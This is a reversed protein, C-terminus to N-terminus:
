VIKNIDEEISNQINWIRKYLGQQELLQKHTGMQTIKGKELVIIKDAQSVTTIRHSIIFTTVDKSRNRLSARIAADTETDVASLSDDFILVPCDNIITRAIAVRQKQGGSLTVGQEGVATDYGNDFDKIVDHISAISAANYIEQDEVDGRAIGINDKITKSFLFPEQLVIGVNRRLWKKNFDKIDIGDIKISGKDYDYLRILLHILSSKGSGTPGLIAVTEGKKADFTVGNLIPNESNYAFHVNEFEINGEIQPKLGENTEEASVDLIENIRDIAVFSKGMDTLIRGMQRVPWLLRNEYTTFAVVTGLTVEGKVAFVCGMILVLGVQIMCFLDSLSWFSAMLQILREVLRRYEENKAEFKEIEHNQRGFARVVRVGTLNEQLTTSLRGDAEDCLKFRSKIKGFFVFSFIFIVPVLSVAILALKTNISFMIWGCILVMFLGRGIEVFQVAFFRRITEVDSTCRQILDGTEAKVHYDYPLNQLHNYLRERMDKAISESAEASLKGKLFLFIGRIVTISVILISCIWLKERLGERGGVLDISKLIFNSAEIPETGLIGDITIKIILPILLALLTEIGISLIAFTYKLINGKLTVALSKLRNM